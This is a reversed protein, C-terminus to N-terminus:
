VFEAMLFVAKLGNRLHSYMHSLFSEIRLVSGGQNVVIVDVEERREM